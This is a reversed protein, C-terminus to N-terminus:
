KLSYHKVRSHQPPKGQFCDCSWLAAFLIYSSSSFIRQSRTQKVLNSRYFKHTRFLWTENGVRLAILCPHHWGERWVITYYLTLLDPFFIGFCRFLCFDLTLIVLKMYTSSHQELFGQWKLKAPFGDFLMWTIASPRHGIQVPWPHAWTLKVTALTWFNM